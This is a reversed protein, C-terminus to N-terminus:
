PLVNTKHAPSAPKGDDWMLKREISTCEDRFGRALHYETVNDFRQQPHPSLTRLRQLGIRAHARLTQWWTPALKPGIDGITWMLRARGRGLRYARKAWGATTVLEPKVIHQVQPGRAFWCRAGARAVRRCFETEQGMPYDSDTSNPGLTEDFRYGREFVSTRVAWNGGFIEDPHTPGEALNREGFMMAFRLRSEVLWQPARGDFLPEITGGLLEFDQERELFAAWATLFSPGPITDDDSLIVLRGEIAQLGTNLARSKGAIPEGFVRLPLTRRFSNLVQATADTSGNDVVVIKWGVPPPHADRYGALVRPLVHEGNRTALLVTLQIAPM